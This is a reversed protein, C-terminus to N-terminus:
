GLQTNIESDFRVSPYPQQLNIGPRSTGGEPLGAVVLCLPPGNFQRESIGAQKRLPKVFRQDYVVGCCTLDLVTLYVSPDPRIVNLLNM